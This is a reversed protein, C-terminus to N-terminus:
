NHIGDVIVYGNYTHYFIEREENLKIGGIADIMDGSINSTAARFGNTYQDSYVFSVPLFDYPKENKKSIGKMRDGLGVVKMKTRAM